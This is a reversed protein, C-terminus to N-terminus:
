SRWRRSRAPCSAWSRARGVAPRSRPPPLRRSACRMPVVATRTAGGASSSGPMSSCSRTSPPIAQRGARVRTRNLRPKPASSAGHPGTMPGLPAAAEAAPAAGGHAPEEERPTVVPAADAAAVGLRQALAILSRAPADGLTRRAALLAPLLGHIWQQAQGQVMGGLRGHVVQLASTQLYALLFLLRDAPTRWPCPEYVPFRRATRPQGDLRWATM